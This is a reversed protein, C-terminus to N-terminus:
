RGRRREGRVSTWYVMETIVIVTIVSEVVGRGTLYSSLVGLAAGGAAAFISGLIAPGASM